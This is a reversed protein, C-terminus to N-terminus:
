SKNADGPRKFNIFTAMGSGLTQNVRKEVWEYHEQLAKLSWRKVNVGDLAYEGVSKRTIVLEEIAAQLNSLYTLDFAM